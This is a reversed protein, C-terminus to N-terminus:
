LFITRSIIKILQYLSKSQIDRCTPTTSKLHTDHSVVGIETGLPRLRFDERCLSSVLRKISPSLMPVSTIFAWAGHIVADIM